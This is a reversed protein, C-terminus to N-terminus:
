KAKMVWQALKKADSESLKPHPPMPLEGWKGVGGNRISVVLKEIADSEAAYKAAVDKFAPGVLKTAVAHCGLCDNKKALAESALSTTAVGFATSLVLSARLIYLFFAPKM